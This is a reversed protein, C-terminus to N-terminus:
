GQAMKRAERQMENLADLMNLVADEETDGCAVAEPVEPCTVLYWGEPQRDVCFELSM